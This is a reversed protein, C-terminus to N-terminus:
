GALLQSVRGRSVELLAAIDSVSIGTARLGAVLERTEAAAQVQMAAAQETRTRIDALREELGGLEYRLRVATDDPVETGTVTCVYDRVQQAAKALVRVQTVGHGDVHLEWGHAWPRALVSFSKSQKTKSM